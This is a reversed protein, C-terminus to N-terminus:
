ATDIRSRGGSASFRATGSWHFPSRSVLEALVWIAVRASGCERNTISTFTSPLSVSITTAARAQWTGAERGLQARRHNPVSAHLQGVVLLERASGTDADVEGVGSGARRGGRHAVPGDGLNIGDPM